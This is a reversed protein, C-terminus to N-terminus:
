KGLQYPLHAAIASRKCYRQIVSTEIVDDVNAQDLLMRKPRRLFKMDPLKEFEGTAIMEDFFDSPEPLNLLEEKRRLSEEVGWVSRGNAIRNQCYKYGINVSPLHQLELVL